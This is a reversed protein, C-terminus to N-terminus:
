GLFTIRNKAVSDRVDIINEDIGFIFIKSIFMNSKVLSLVDENYTSFINIKIHLQVLYHLLNVLKTFEWNKLILNVEDHESDIAWAKIQEYNDNLIINM